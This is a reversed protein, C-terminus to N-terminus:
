APVRGIFKFKKLDYIGGDRNIIKYPMKHNPITNRYQVDFQPNLKLFKELNENNEFVWNFADVASIRAYIDPPFSARYSGIGDVDSPNNKIGRTNHKNIITPGKSLPKIQAM